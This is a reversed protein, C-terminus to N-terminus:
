RCASFRFIIVRLLRFCAFEKRKWSTAAWRCQRISTWNRALYQAIFETSLDRMRMQPSNLHRWLPAGNQCIVVASHLRHQKGSLANLQTTADALDRPKTLILGDLDFVQDCGIVLAGPEKLSVKRAKAQALADAIDRPNAGDNKLSACVADEDIRAGRASFKVGANQLLTQRTQSGSALVIPEAVHMVRHM